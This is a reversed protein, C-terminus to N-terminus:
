NLHSELRYKPILPFSPIVAGLRYRYHYSFSSMLIEPRYCYRYNQPFLSELTVLSSTIIKVRVTFGETQQDGFVRQLFVIAILEKLTLSKCVLIEKYQQHGLLRTKKYTPPQKQIEPSEQETAPRHTQPM